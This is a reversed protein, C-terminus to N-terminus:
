GIIEKSKIIQQIIFDWTIDIIRSYGTKCFVRMEDLGRRFVSNQPYGHNKKKVPKIKSKEIGAKWCIAYAISAVAFLKRYKDLCKLQSKEINFGRGKLAQFHNEISWRKYYEQKLESSNSTGILFLLAGQKDYSLSVNVVVGDVVVGNIRRTKRKALLSLAKHLSGDTFMINHSKPIRVCFVIGNDKLWKLWKHGIFERDMVLLKIRNVGIISIIEQLIRQRDNTHSNGSKNDLLEFYLPIGLKGISIMVCLINIQTKGFDWETRDISLTLQRKDTFSLFYIALQKYDFSVKLFFDQVMRELSLLTIPKDIKSALESFVVSRAQILGLVIHVLFEQRSKHGIFGNLRISQYIKSYYSPLLKLTKTM